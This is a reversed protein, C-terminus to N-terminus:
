NSSSFNLGALILVDKDALPHWKIKYVQCKDNVMLDFKAELSLNGMASYNLIWVKFYNTVVIKNASNIQIRIGLVNNFTSGLDISSKCDNQNM